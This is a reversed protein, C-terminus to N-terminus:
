IMSMIKRLAVNIYSSDKGSEHHLKQTLELPIITLELNCLYIQYAFYIIQTIM